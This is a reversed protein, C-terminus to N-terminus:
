RNPSLPAPSSSEPRMLYGRGKTVTVRDVFFVAGAQCVIRFDSGAAQRNAFYPAFLRWRATRCKGDGRLTITGATQHPDASGDYELSLSKGRLEPADFYTAEILAEPESGDRIYRDDVQFYFHRPETPHSDSQRLTVPVSQGPITVTAPRTRGDPPEPEPRRVGTGRDPDGLDLDLRGPGFVQSISEMFDYGYNGGPYKPGLEATPEVTSGEFWESLSTIVAWRTSPGIEPAFERFLKFLDVVERKSGAQVVGQTPRGPGYHISFLNRNFQPMGGAIFRVPLLTSRNRKGKLAQAYQGFLPRLRRRSEETSITEGIPPIACPHHYVADVSQIVRDDGSWAVHETAIFYPNLGPGYHARIRGIMAEFEAGLSNAGAGWFMMLPRENGAEDKIYGYRDRDLVESKWNKIAEELRARYAPDGFNELGGMYVLRLRGLRVGPSFAQRFLNLTWNGNWYGSLYDIEYRNCLDAVSQGYQPTAQSFYRDAAPNSQLPTRVSSLSIPPNFGPHIWLYSTLIIKYDLPSLPPPRNTSSDPSPPKSVSAPGEPDAAPHSPPDDPQPRAPEAGPNSRPPQAPSPSLSRAAAAWCIALAMMAAAPIWRTKRSTGPNM